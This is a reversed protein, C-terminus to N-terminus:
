LGINVQTRIKLKRGNESEMREPTCKIARDVFVIV